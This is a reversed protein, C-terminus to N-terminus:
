VGGTADHVTRHDYCFRELQLVLQEAGAQLDTIQPLQKLGTTIYEFQKDCYVPSVVQIAHTLHPALRCFGGLGAKDAESLASALNHGLGRLQKLTWGKGRLFAKLGLEVAHCYLYYAPIPAVPGSAHQLVFRGTDAFEKCYRWLGM